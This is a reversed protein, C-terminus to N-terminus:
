FKQVFDFNGYNLISFLCNGYIKLGIELFSMRTELQNKIYVSFYFNDFFNAIVLISDALKCFKHGYIEGKNAV